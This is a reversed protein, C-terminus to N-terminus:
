GGTCVVSYQPAPDTSGPVAVFVVELRCAYGAPAPAVGDTVTYGGAGDPTELLIPMGAPPDYPTGPAPPPGPPPDPAVVCSHSAPAAAQGPNGPLVTVTALKALM